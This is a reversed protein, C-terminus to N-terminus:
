PGFIALVFFGKGSDELLKSIQAGLFGVLLFGSRKFASLRSVSAKVSPTIM